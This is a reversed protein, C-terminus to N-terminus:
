SATLGDMNELTLDVADIVMSEDRIDCVRSFVEGGDERIEDEVATLKAPNRALIVVNSGLFALEHATCRGIGSGGGTVIITQGKFLDPKFVSSYSMWKGERM